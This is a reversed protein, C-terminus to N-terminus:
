AHNVKLQEQPKPRELEGFKEDVCPTDFDTVQGIIEAERPYAFRRISDPSSYHPIILLYNGHLECWGCAYADRLEIFYIPREYENRWGVLLLKRQRTDIRVFSGPRIMPYMTSDNLGIYGRIIRRTEYNRILAVPRRNATQVTRPLITTRYLSLGELSKLSRTTRDEEQVEEPLLQTLHPTAITEYKEIDDVNV